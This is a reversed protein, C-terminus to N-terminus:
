FFMEKLCWGIGVLIVKGFLGGVFNGMAQHNQKDPEYEYVRFLAAVFSVGIAQPITLSPLGFIPVIFWGWLTSLAWGNVASGVVMMVTAFTLIGFLAVLWEM